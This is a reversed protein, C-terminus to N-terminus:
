SLGNEGEQLNEQYPDEIMSPNFFAASEISYEKSFYSGILLKREKSLHNTRLGAATLDDRVNEFNNEFVKTINRHRKSFERLVENLVLKVSDTDLNMVKGVISAVREGDGPVFPRAIVRKSNPYFYVPKRKVTIAMIPVYQDGGKSKDLDVAPCRGNPSEPPYAIGPRLTGHESTILRAPSYIQKSCPAEFRSRLSHPIAGFFIAKM